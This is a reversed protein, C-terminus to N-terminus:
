HMHQGHCLYPYYFLDIFDNRSLVVIVPLPHAHATDGLLSVVNSTMEYDAKVRRVAREIATRCPHMSTVIVIVPSICTSIALKTTHLKILQMFMYRPCRGATYSPLCVDDHTLIPVLVQGNNISATIEFHEENDCRCAVVRILSRAVIRSHAM